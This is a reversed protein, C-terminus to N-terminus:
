ITFWVNLLASESTASDILELHPFVSNDWFYGVRDMTTNIIEEFVAVSVVHPKGNLDVFNVTSLGNKIARKLYMDMRFLNIDGGAVFYEDGNGLKISMGKAIFGNYISIANQIKGRKIEELIM